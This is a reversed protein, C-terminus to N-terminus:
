RNGPIM